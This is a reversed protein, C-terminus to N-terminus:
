VKRRSVLALLADRLPSQEMSDALAAFSTVANRPLEHDARKGSPRQPEDPMPQVKLKIGEIAWGKARLDSQLKPLVQRLRTALAANPVAVQLQGERVQLARCTAFLTPLLRECDAQLQGVRQAAPLLEALKDSSKLFESVERTKPAQGPRRAPTFNPPNRVM